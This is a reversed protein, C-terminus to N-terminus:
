EDDQPKDQDKLVVNILSSIRNGRVTSDDYVFKLQPTVRLKVANALEYRMYKSLDNLSDIIEKARGDDLVSMFVKAHSMDHAVEVGTVTVIGLKAEEAKDQIIEALTTQILDAVRQNRSYSKKAM